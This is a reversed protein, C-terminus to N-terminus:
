KIPKTKKNINNKIRDREKQEKKQKEEEIKIQKHKKLIITTEITIAITIFIIIILMLTIPKSKEKEQIQIEDVIEEQRPEEQRPERQTREGIAFYSFGPTEAEYTIIKEGEQKIKTPLEEWKNTYRHLAINEADINEEELWEKRVDFEITITENIEEIVKEIIIEYVKYIRGQFTTTKDQIEDRQIERIEKKIRENKEHNIINISTQKEVEDETENRQTEEEQKEDEESKTETTPPPPAMGGGGGGGGGSVTTQQTTLKVTFTNSEITENNLATIIKTETDIENSSKIIIRNTQRTYPINNNTLNFQPIENGKLYYDFYNDLNITIDKNTYDNISPINNKFTIYPEPMITITWTNNKTTKNNTAIVKVTYTGNEKQSANFLYTENETILEENMFWSYQITRNYYDSVNYMFIQTENYELTITEQEPEKGIEQLPVGNITLNWKITANGIENAVILKITANDKNKAIFTYTENQTLTQNLNNIELWTINLEGDIPNTSNQKFIITENEYITINLNQPTINNIQPYPNIIEITLTKNKAIYETTEQQKGTVNYEGASLSINTANERNIEENNIILTVNSANIEQITINYYGPYGTINEEFGNILLNFEPIKKYQFFEQITTNGNENISKIKIEYEGFSTLNEKSLIISGQKQQTEYITLEEKKITLNTSHEKISQTQWTINILENETIISTNKQLIINPPNNDLQMVAQKVQILSYNKNTQSDYIKEGTTQILNIIETTNLEEGHILKNAQQILAIAGSVHPTAMSTGSLQANNTGTYASIINVGPASVMNPFNIGRNANEAYQKNKTISTVPIVKSVCAPFAIRQYNGDNGTAVVVSINKQIANNVINTEYQFYNECENSNPFLAMTGASISIISINYEEKNDICWQIGLTITGATGEGNDGLAKVALLKAKPAVGTISGNGAIIGAVHTGHGNYDMVDNSSINITNTGGIVKNCERSNYQQTTCGGLSPHAYNIGTDIVCIVEEKGTIKEGNITVNNLEKSQIITTSDSLSTRVIPDLRISKLNRENRLQDLDEKTIEVVALNIEENIGILTGGKGEITEELNQSQTRILARRHEEKRQIVVKVTEKEELEELIKEDINPKDEIVVYGLFEGTIFASIVLLSIIVYIAKEKHKQNM